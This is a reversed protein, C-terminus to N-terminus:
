GSGLVSDTRDVHSSFNVAIM